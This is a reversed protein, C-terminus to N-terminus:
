NYLNQEDCLSKLEKFYIWSNAHGRNIYIHDLMFLKNLNILLLDDELYNM